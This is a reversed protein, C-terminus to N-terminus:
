EYNCNYNAFIDLELGVICHRNAVENIVKARQDNIYTRGELMKYFNDNSIALKQNIRRREISRARNGRLHLYWRRLCDARRKKETHSIM